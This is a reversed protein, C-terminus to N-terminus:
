RLQRESVAARSLRHVIQTYGTGVACRDPFHDAIPNHTLAFVFFYCQLSQKIPLLYDTNLVLPM